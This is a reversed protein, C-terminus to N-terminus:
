FHAVPLVLSSKDATNKRVGDMITKMEALHKNSTEQEKAIRQMESRAANM